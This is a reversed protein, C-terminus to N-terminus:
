GSLHNKGLWNVLDSSPRRFGFGCEARSATKGPTIVNNRNDMSVGENKKYVIVMRVSQRM